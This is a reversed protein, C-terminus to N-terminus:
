TPTRMLRPPAGNDSQGANATPGSLTTSMVPSTVATPAASSPQGAVGVAVTDTACEGVADWVGVAVGVDVPVLMGVGVRVGVTVTVGVTGSTDPRQRSSGSATLAEVHRGSSDWCNALSRAARGGHSCDTATESAVVAVSTSQVPVLTAPVSPGSPVNCK